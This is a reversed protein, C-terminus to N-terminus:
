AVRYEHHSLDRIPSLAHRRCHLVIHLGNKARRYLWNDIM